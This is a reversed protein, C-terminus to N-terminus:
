GVPCVIMKGGVLEAGGSTLWRCTVWSVQHLPHRFSCSGRTRSTPVSENVHVPSTRVTVVPGRRTLTTTDTPRIVVLLAMGVTIIVAASVYPAVLGARRRRRAMAILLPVSALTAGVVPWWLGVVVALVVCAIARM